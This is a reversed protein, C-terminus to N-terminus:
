NRRLYEAAVLAVKTEEALRDHLSAVFEKDHDTACRALREAASSAESCFGKLSASFSEGDFPARGDSELVSVADSVDRLVNSVSILSESVEGIKSAMNNSFRDSTVRAEQERIGGYAGQRIYKTHDEYIKRWDPGSMARELDDRADTFLVVDDGAIMSALDFSPEEGSLIADVAERASERIARGSECPLASEPMSKGEAEDSVKLSGSEDLTAKCIAGGNDVYAYGEHVAVLDVEAAECAELYSQIREEASGETFRKLDESRIYRTM